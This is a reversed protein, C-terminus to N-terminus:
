EGDDISKPVNSTRDNDLNRAFLCQEELSLITESDIGDASYCAMVLQAFESSMCADCFEKVYCRVIM